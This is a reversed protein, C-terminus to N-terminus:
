SPPRLIYNTVTVTQAPGLGKIQPTATVTVVKFSPKGDPDVLPIGLSDTGNTVTWNAVYVVKEKAAAIEGESNYQASGNTLADYAARSQGATNNHEEAVRQAIALAQVNTKNNTNLAIAITMGQALVLLSISLFTIAVLTEVLTFGGQSQQCPSLIKIQKRFVKM